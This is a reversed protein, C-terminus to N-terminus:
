SYRWGSSPYARTDARRSRKTHCDSLLRGHSFAHHNTENQKCCGEHCLFVWTLFNRPMEVVIRSTRAHLVPIARLGAQVAFRIHGAARCQTWLVSCLKAKALYGVAFEPQNSGTHVCGSEIVNFARLVSRFLTTYPFLTSRPPRRIM